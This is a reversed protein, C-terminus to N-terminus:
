DNMTYIEYTGNDNNYPLESREFTDIPLQLAPWQDSLDVCPSYNKAAQGNEKQVARWSPTCFPIMIYMGDKMGIKGTGVLWYVADQPVNITEIRSTAVAHELDTDVEETTSYNVALSTNVAGWFDVSLSSTVGIESSKKIAQKQSLL